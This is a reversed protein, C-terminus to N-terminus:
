KSCADIAAALEDWSGRAMAVVEAAPRERYDEYIIANQTDDEVQPPPEKGTRM